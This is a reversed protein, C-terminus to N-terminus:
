RTTRIQYPYRQGTEATVMIMGDSRTTLVKRVEGTSWRIGKAHVSYNTEQTDYQKAEDSVVVIDPSCVEFVEETYGSERGHHSAVFINVRSLHERFRVNEMLARWGAKELDGPFVISVTPYHLFVVQSLNNTDTFTPYPNYFAEYELGAYSPPTNVAAVYIRLMELLATMGPGLPGSELKLTRLQDPTITSNRNLIQIPIRHRLARLRPLGSLHDEDYNSVFFREISICSHTVLYDGPEFQTEENRGCDILMTNGNDAIVYACFGHAVDFIQVQM